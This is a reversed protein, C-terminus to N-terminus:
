AMIEEGLRVYDEWARSASANNVGYAVLQDVTTNAKLAARYANYRRIRSALTPIQLKKLTARVEREDKNLSPDGVTILVVANKLDHRMFLKVTAKLDAESPQCPVIVLDSAENIAMIEKDSPHAATDVIIYPTEVSGGPRVVPFGMRGEGGEWGLCTGLDDSDVLTVPGHHTVFYRALHIASTSKGVGGKLNAFTIVLPKM